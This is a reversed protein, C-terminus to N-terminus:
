ANPILQGLALGLCFLLERMFLPVPFRLGAMLAHEYLAISGVPAEFARSDEPATFHIGEPVLYTSYYPILTKM